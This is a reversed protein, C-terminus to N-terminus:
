YYQYVFEILIKKPTAIDHFSTNIKGEYAKIKNKLHKEHYVLESDFRKKISNNVEDWIKNYKELLEINKMLFSMYKTEDFSKAYGSIKSANYM